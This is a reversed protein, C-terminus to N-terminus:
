LKFLKNAGTSPTFTIDTGNPIVPLGAFNDVYAILASTGEVGTDKFYVVAEATDGAAAVFTGVTHDCVGNTATKGALAASTSVRAAVPIDDLFDHNVQDATYDAADILVAKITDAVWDIDGLAFAERGKDYLFTAM